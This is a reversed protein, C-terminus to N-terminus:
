NTVLLQIAFLPAFGHARREVRVSSSSTFNESIVSERLDLMHRVQVGVPHDWRARIWQVVAVSRLDYERSKERTTGGIRELRPDRRISWFGLDSFICCLSTTSAPAASAKIIKALTHELAASRIGTMRLATSGECIYINLAVWEDIILNKTFSGVPEFEATEAGERSHGWSAAESKLAARETLYTAFCTSPTHCQNVRGAKELRKYVM